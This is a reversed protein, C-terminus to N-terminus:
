SHSLYCVCCLSSLFPDIYKRKHESLLKDDASLWRIVVVSPNHLVSVNQQLQQVALSDSCAWFDRVPHSKSLYSTQCCHSDVFLATQALSSEAEGLPLKRICYNWCVWQARRRERSQWVGLLRQAGFGQESKGGGWGIVQTDWSYSSIEYRNPCLIPVEWWFLYAACAAVLSVM